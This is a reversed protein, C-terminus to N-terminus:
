SDSRTEADHVNEKPPVPQPKFSGFLFRAAVAMLILVAIAVYDFSGAYPLLTTPSVVAFTWVTTAQCICCGCCIAALGLHRSRNWVEGLLASLVITLGAIRVVDHVPSVGSFLAIPLISIAWLAGTLLYASRFLM